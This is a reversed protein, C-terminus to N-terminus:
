TRYCARSELGHLPSTRGARSEDRKPRGSSTNDLITLIEVKDVEKLPMTAM